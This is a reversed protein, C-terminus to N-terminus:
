LKLLRAFYYATMIFGYIAIARRMKDPDVKVSLRAALFGGVIGGAILAYAQPFLVLAKSFFVCSSAFNIVSGLWSKVANLEHTTGEMFLSFAALMMIGMGAGFYGGYVAVLLQIVAGLWIPITHRDRTAMYAKIRPQFWLLTAAFLILFPIVIKFATDSTNLLLLAGLLSGLITPLVLIKFFVRTKDFQKNFGLGSAFSGPFLGVSNTANAVRDPIGLGLTLVPFTILSGGGAVSNIGSAVAGATFLLLTEGITV